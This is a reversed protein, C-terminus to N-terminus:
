LNSAIAKLIGLRELARGATVQTVVLVGFIALAFGGASM